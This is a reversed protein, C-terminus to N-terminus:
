SCAVGVKVDVAGVSARGAGVTTRVIGVCDAKSGSGPQVTIVFFGVGPGVASDIYGGTVSASWTFPGFSALTVMM